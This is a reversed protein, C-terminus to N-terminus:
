YGCWNSRYYSDAIVVNMKTDVTISRYLNEDCSNTNRTFTISCVLRDRHPYFQDYNYFLYGSARHPSVRIYNAVIKYVADKIQYSNCSQTSIPAAWSLSSIAITHTFLFIIKKM